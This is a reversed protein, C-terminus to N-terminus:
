GDVSVAKRHGVLKDIETFPVQLNDAGDDRHGLHHVIGGLQAGHGAAGATVGHLEAVVVDDRRAGGFRDDRLM